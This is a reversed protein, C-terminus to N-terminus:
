KDGLEAAIRARLDDVAGAAYAPECKMGLLLDGAERLLAHASDRQDRTIGLAVHAKENLERAKELDDLLTLATPPDFAAIHHATAECQRAETNILASAFAVM